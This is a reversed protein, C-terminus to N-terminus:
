PPPPTWPEEVGPGSLLEAAFPYDDLRRLTFTGLDGLPVEQTGTLSEVEPGAYYRFRKGREGAIRAASSLAPLFRYPYEPEYNVHFAVYRYWRNDPEPWYHATLAIEDARLREEIADTSPSVEALQRAVADEVGTRTYVTPVVLFAVLLWVLVLGANRPARSLLWMAAPISVVFGPAFYHGYGQRAFAMAVLVAAAAFWVVPQPDRKVVGVVAAIGALGYVVFARRVGPNDLSFLELEFPEVGTNIGKGRAAEEVLYLARAWDPFDFIAPLALGVFFATVVFANFPSFVRGVVAPVGRRRALWALAFLAGVLLVPHTLVLIEKRALAFPFLGANLALAVALVVLGGISAFFRGWGWDGRLRQLARTRLDPWWGADPPRWLAALALAPLLGLAHLKVMVSLGLVVAAWGYLLASREELARGVLYAFVGVLVGLLVDARYQISAIALGPAALWLLASALGWAWHRFLRAFLLFVAVTGGLYILIALGRYIPRTRDLDLMRGDVYDARSAVDGKARAVLFDAGFAVAALEELPLGPHDLYRVQVGTLLNLGNSVYVADADAWTWWPSRLPQGLVIVVAVAVAAALALGPALRAPIARATAAAVARASVVRTERLRRSGAQRVRVHDDAPAAAHRRRNIAAGYTRACVAMDVGSLLHLVREAGGLHEIAAPSAYEARLLSRAEAPARAEESAYDGARSKVNPERSM